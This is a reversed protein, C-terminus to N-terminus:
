VSGKVKVYQDVFACFSIERWLTYTGNYNRLTRSTKKAGGLIHNSSNRYTLYQKRDIFSM